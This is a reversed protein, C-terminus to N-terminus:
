KLHNTGQFMILYVYYFEGLIKSNRGLVDRAYSDFLFYANDYKLVAQSVGAAMIVGMDDDDFFVSLGTALSMFTGDNEHLKGYVVSEEFNFDAVASELKFETGVENLALNPELFKGKEKLQVVSGTYFEDGLRVIEDITASNWGVIGLEKTKALAILSICTSQHDRNSSTFEESSESIKGSLIWKKSNIAKFNQWNNAKDTFEKAEVKCIKYMFSRKDKKLNSIYLQVLDSLNKFWSICSNGDESFEDARRYQHCQNPDFMFFYNQERWIAVTDPGILLCADFKKFLSELGAKLSLEEPKRTVVKGIIASEVSMELKLNGFQVILKDFETIPFEKKEIPQAKPKAMRQKRRARIKAVSFEDDDDDDDEEDEDDANPDKPPIPDPELAQAMQQKREEIKQFHNEVNENFLEHGIEFIKSITSPQWLSSKCIRLMLISVSSIFPARNEQSLQLYNSCMLFGHDSLNSRQFCDGFIPEPRHRYLIAALGSRPRETLQTKQMVEEPEPEKITEKVEKNPKAKVPCLKALEEEIKIIKDIRFSSIEYRQKTVKFNSVLYDIITNLSTSRIACGAGCTKQVLKGNEDTDESNFIYFANEDSWIAYTQGCYTVFISSFESLVNEIQSQMKKMETPEFCGKEVKECFETLVKARRLYIKTNMECPKFINQHRFRRMQRRCNIDGYLIIEDVHENKWESM